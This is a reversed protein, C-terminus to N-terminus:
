LLSFLGRLDRSIGYGKMKSKRIVFAICFIMVKGTKGTLAALLLLGSFVRVIGSM